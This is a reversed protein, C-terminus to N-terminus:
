KLRAKRWTKRKSTPMNSFPEVVTVCSFPQEIARKYWRQPRAVSNASSVSKHTGAPQCNVVVAWCTEADMGLLRRKESRWIMGCGMLLELVMKIGAPERRQALRSSRLPRRVVMKMLEVHEITQSCYDAARSFSIGDAKNIAASAKTTATRDEM